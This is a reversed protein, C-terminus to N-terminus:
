SRSQLPRHLSTPKILPNHGSHGFFWLKFGSLVSIRKKELVKQFNWLNLWLSSRPVYLIMVLDDLKNVTLSVESNRTFCHNIVHPFTGEGFGCEKIGKQRVCETNM